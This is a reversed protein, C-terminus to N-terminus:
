YDRYKRFNGHLGLVRGCTGARVGAVKFGVGLSLGQNGGTSLRSCMSACPPDATADSRGRWVGREGECCPSCLM